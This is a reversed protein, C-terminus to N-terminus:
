DTSHIFYVPDWHNQRAYQARCPTGTSIEALLPSLSEDGKENSNCLIGLFDMADLKGSGHFRICVLWARLAM